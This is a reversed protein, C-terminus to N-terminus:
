ESSESSHYMRIYFSNWVTTYNSYRLVAKYSSTDKLCCYFVENEIPGYHSYENKIQILQYWELRRTGNDFAKKQNHSLLQSIKSRVSLLEYWIKRETQLHKRALVSDVKGRNDGYRIIDEQKLGCINENLDNYAKRFQQKPILKYKQKTSFSGTSLTTYFEQLNCMRISDMELTMEIHKWVDFDRLCEDNENAHYKLFLHKTAILSDTLQKEKNLLTSVHNDVFPLIHQLLSDSRMQFSVYSSIGIWQLVEDIDEKAWNVYEIRNRFYKDLPYRKGNDTIFYTIGNTSDLICPPITEKESVITDQTAEMCSVDELQEKPNHQCYCLLMLGSLLLITKM